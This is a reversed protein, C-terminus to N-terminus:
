SLENVKRKWYRSASTMVSGTGPPFGRVDTMTRGGENVTADDAGESKTSGGERHVESPTGGDTPGLMRIRSAGSLADVVGEVDPKNM